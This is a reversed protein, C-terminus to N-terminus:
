ETIDIKMYRALKNAVNVDDNSMNRDKDRYFTIVITM